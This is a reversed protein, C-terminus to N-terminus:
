LFLVDKFQCLFFVELVQLSLSNVIQVILTAHFLYNLQYGKLKINCYITLLVEIQLRQFTIAQYVFCYHDYIYNRIIYQEFDFRNLTCKRKIMTLLIFIDYIFLKTIKQQFKRKLDKSICYQKFIFITTQLQFITLSTKMIVSILAIIKNERIYLGQFLTIIARQYELEILLLHIHKFVYYQQLNNYCYITYNWLQRIGYRKKQLQKGIMAMEIQSFVLQMITLISHCGRMKDMYELFFCFCISLQISDDSHPQKDEKIYQNIDILRLLYFPDEIIVKYIGYSPIQSFVQYLLTQIEISSQM